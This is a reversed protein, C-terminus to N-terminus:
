PPACVDSPACPDAGGGCSFSPALAEVLCGEGDVAIDFDSNDGWTTGAAVTLSAGAIAIAGSGPAQNAQLDTATVTVSTGTQALIGAGRAGAANQTVSGAELELEGASLLVGGGDGSATNGLLDVGDFTAGAGVWLGGGRDAENDGFRATTVQLPRDTWLGGGDSTAVNADFAADTLTTVCGPCAPVTERVAVGGGWAAVNQSVDTHALTLQGGLVAIGGGWGGEARNGLFRVREVSGPDYDVDLVGAVVLVGGGAETAVNDSFLGLMLAMDGDAYVGGGEDAQNGSASARELRGRGAAGGGRPATNDRLQAGSVTAGDVFVGGGAEDAVGGLLRRGAPHRGRRRPRRRRAPRHQRRLHRDPRARRPRGASPSGAGEPAACGSVTGGTAQLKQGVWVGGGAARASAQAIAVGSLTM